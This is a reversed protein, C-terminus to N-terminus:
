ALRSGFAASRDLLDALRSQLEAWPMRDLLRALREHAGALSVPRQGGTQYRAKLRARNCAACVWYRSKRGQREKLRGCKCIPPRGCNLESRQPAAGRIAGIEWGRVSRLPETDEGAPAGRRCSTRDAQEVPNEKM